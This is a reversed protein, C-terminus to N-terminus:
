HNQVMVHLNRLQHHNQFTIYSLPLLTCGAMMGTAAEKIEAGKASAAHLLHVASM